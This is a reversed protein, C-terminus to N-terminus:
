FTGERMMWLAAGYSFISNSCETFLVVLLYLTHTLDAAKTYHCEIANYNKRLSSDGVVASYLSKVVVCTQNVILKARKSGPDM